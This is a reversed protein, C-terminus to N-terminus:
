SGQGFELTQKGQQESRLPCLYVRSRDSVYSGLLEPVVVLVVGNFEPPHKQVQEVLVLDALYELPLHYCCDPALTALARPLPLLGKQVQHHSGELVFLFHVFEHGGDESVLGDLPELAVM